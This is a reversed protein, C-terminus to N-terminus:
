RKAKRRPRDLWADTTPAPPKEARDALKDYDDALRLAIAMADLDNMHSALARMQAARDHWHHPDNRFSM